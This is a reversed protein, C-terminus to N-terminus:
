DMMDHSHTGAALSRCDRRVRHAHGIGDLHHETPWNWAASSRCVVLCKTLIRRIILLFFQDSLCTGAGRLVPEQQHHPQYPLHQPQQQFPPARSPYQQAPPQHQQQSQLSPPHRDFEPRVTIEDRNSFEFVIKHGRILADRTQYFSILNSAATADPLQVFATCKSPILLSKEVVAFPCCLALLESELCDPPLGRM